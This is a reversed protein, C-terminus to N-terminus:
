CSSRKHSVGCKYMSSAGRDKWPRLLIPCYNAAAALDLPARVDTQRQLLSRCSVSSAGVPNIRTNPSVGYTRTM